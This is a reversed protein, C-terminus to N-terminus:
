SGFAVSAPIPTHKEFKNTLSPAYQANKPYVVFRPCVERATGITPGEADHHCHTVTNHWLVAYNRNREETIADDTKATLEELLVQIKVLVAATIADRKQQSM